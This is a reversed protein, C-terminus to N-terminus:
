SPVPEFPTVSASSLNLTQTILVAELKKTRKVVVQVRRKGTLGDAALSYRAFCDTSGTAVVESGGSDTVERFKTVDNSGTSTGDNVYAVCVTRGGSNATLEGAAANVTIDSVCKLWQDLNTAGSASACPSSLVPLTAGYRSGERAGSTLGQKTNYAIGGTFMGLVIAMFVPLILAFEVL